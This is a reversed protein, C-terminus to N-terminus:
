SEDAAAVGANKNYYSEPRFFYKGYIFGALDWAALEDAFAKAKGGDSLRHGPLSVISRVARGIRHRPVGFLHPVAEPREREMLGQSIMRWLAWRRYYRRTLRDAPIHHYIALEPVYMGKIGAALVRGFFDADENSLLGNASRGLKPSYTGVAEFVTRRIVANGGNLFGPHGDGYWGRPKPPIVGIASHYGPPLWDPAPIEWNGLCPGGIYQVRSDAFERPIVRYWETDIQEDDDIFGIIEGTGAAIGANRASSLGQTLERVYHLPLTARAQIEEVVSKTDDKSNNDVVYISVELGEPVPARLLSEVAVRMLKSRNYTPVIVDLKM